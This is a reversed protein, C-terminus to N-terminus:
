WFQAAVPITLVSNAITPHSTLEYNVFFGELENKLSRETEIKVIRDSFKQILDTM